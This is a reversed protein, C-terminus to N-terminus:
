DLDVNVHASAAVSIWTALEAEVYKQFADGALPEPVFGAAGFKKRADDSNLAAVTETRLKAVVDPPMNAPGLLGYWIAVTAGPLGSEALTPVDPMSPDRQAGTVALVRLDGSKALGAVAQPAPLTLDIHGGVLDNIAGGSGRYPVHTMQIGAERSLLLTALHPGSGVGSTGYRLKGPNQKAYAILDAITHFPLKPNITVALPVTLIRTIFTFDGPVKYPVGKHVAPLITIADSNAHLLTYGDPPSQTVYQVGIVSSAGPKNEVVVSQNLREGMVEALIRASLDSGGGPVYGVILRIPKTPYGAARAVRPLGALILGGLGLLRRGLSRRGLLPRGLLPRGLLPRGLIMESRAM